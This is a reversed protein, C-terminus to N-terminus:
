LQRYDGNFSGPIRVGGGMRGDTDGVVHSCAVEGSADVVAAVHSASDDHPTVNAIAMQGLLTTGIANGDPWLEATM